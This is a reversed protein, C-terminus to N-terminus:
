NRFTFPYNVQVGGGGAPKPFEIARIVAAVCTAVDAAVGSANSAAVVGNPSIFFQTQVTGALEPHVALAQEYCAKVKPLEAKVRDRLLQKDLGGVSQPQGIFVRPIRKGRKALEAAPPMHGLSVIRAGAGDLAAVVEVLRQVDADPGVLVDVDRRAADDLSLRAALYATAVATADVAGAALPITSAPSPVAEVTLESAGVRVEIWPRGLPPITAVERALGFGIRLARLRGQSAVALVAGDIAALLDVVPAAKATPAAIVLARAPRDHPDRATGVVPAARVPLDPNANDIAAASTLDAGGDRRAGLIGARRAARIAAAFEPDSGAFEMEYRGETRDTHKKGMKGEELMVWTGTGGSEDAGDDEPDEEPPPPPDDSEAAVGIPRTPPAGGGAVLKASPEIKTNSAAAERVLDPLAQRDIAVPARRPPQDLAAWQAVATPAEPADAVGLSGDAAVIVLVRPPAVSEDLLAKADAVTPAQSALPPRPKESSRGCGAVVVVAVVISRGRMGADYRTRGRSRSRRAAAPSPVRTRM